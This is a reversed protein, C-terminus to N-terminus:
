IGLFLENEKRDSCLNKLREEVESLSKSDISRANQPCVAICRMCTICSYKDTKAPKDIDIANVPCLKVCLGCSNCKSNTEPKYSAGSYKKYPVNGPVSIIKLGSCNFMDKLKRSYKELVAKDMIDPRGGAYKRVISHETVASVAGVAFFGMKEVTNKLELLTDDYARNGYCVVLVAYARDVKMKGLRELVIHPVRGGFSPVSIFCIDGKFFAYKSYDTNAQSLDIYTDVNFANLVMDSAKKTGGTPSFYLSYVSM